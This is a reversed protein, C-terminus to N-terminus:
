QLVLRMLWGLLTISIIMGFLNFSCPSFFLCAETCFPAGCFDYAGLSHAQAAEPPLENWAGSTRNPLM